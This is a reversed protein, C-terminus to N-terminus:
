ALPARATPPSHPTNTADRPRYMVKLKRASQDSRSAAPAPFPIRRDGALCSGFVIPRARTQILGPRVSLLCTRVAILGARVLVLARGVEILERGVAVLCGTVTVQGV